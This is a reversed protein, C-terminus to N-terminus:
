QAVPNLFPALIEGLRAVVSPALQGDRGAADLEARDFVVPITVRDAQVMSRLRDSLSHEQPNIVVTGSLTDGTEALEFRVGDLRDFLTEPARYDLTYEHAGETIGPRETVEVAVFDGFTKLAAQVSQITHPPLLVFPVAATRDSDAGSASVAHASVFCLDDLLLQRPVSLEFPIEQAASGAPVAFDRVVVIDGWPVEMPLYANAGGGAGFGSVGLPNLAGGMGGFGGFGGFGVPATFGDANQTVIGVTVTSYTATDAPHAYVTVVGTITENWTFGSGNSLHVVIASDDSAATYIESESM